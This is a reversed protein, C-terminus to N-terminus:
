HTLKQVVTKDPKNEEHVHLNNFLLVTAFSDINNIQRQHRSHVRFFM